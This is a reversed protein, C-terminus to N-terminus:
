LTFRRPPRATRVCLGDCTAYIIEKSRMPDSAIKKLIEPKYM